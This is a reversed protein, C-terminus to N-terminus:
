EDISRGTTGSDMFNGSFSLFVLLQSMEQLMSLILYTITIIFFIVLIHMIAPPDTHLLIM